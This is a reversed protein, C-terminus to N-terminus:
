KKSSPVAGKDVRKSFETDEGSALAKAQEIWNERQVRGKFSLFGNIWDVNEDSWGAVQDFHYIGLENLTGEIKPGVGKIRKLDDKKGGRPESLGFPKGGADASPEASEVKAAETPEEPVAPEPEPESAAIPEPEPKAPPAAVPAPAVPKAAERPKAAPQPKFFLCRIVYGLIAGVLFAVLMVLATELILAINM